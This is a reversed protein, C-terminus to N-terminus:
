LSAPGIERLHWWEEFMTCLGAADFTCRFIGDLEVRRRSPRWDFCANWRALGTDGAVALVESRFAVRDQGEVVRTRWYRGIADRGEMPAVFPTERYTGDEAFLAMAAAPDRTEWAARYRSLWDAFRDPTIM